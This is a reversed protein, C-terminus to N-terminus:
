MSKAGIQEELNTSGAGPESLRRPGGRLHGEYLSGISSVGLVFGLFCGPPSCCGSLRSCGILRRPMRPPLPIRQLLPIRQPPPFKPPLTMRQPAAQLVRGEHRSSRTHSPGATPQSPRRLLMSSRLALTTSSKYCCNAIGRSTRRSRFTLSCM